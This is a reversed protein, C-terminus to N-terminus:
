VGTVKANIPQVRQGEWLIRAFKPARPPLNFRGYCLRLHPVFCLLPTARTARCRKFAGVCLPLLETAIWGM